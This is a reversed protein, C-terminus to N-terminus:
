QWAISFVPVPEAFGKLAIAGLPTADIGTLGADVCLERSVLISGAEAADCLRAAMQVATGFLDAGEVVPEGAHLGIRVHVPDGSEANFDVLSRQIRRAGDLAAAPDAFAAMIGDGLHKVERGGTSALAARVLSDHARVLELARVEGLRATMETSGVIDTFMIARYASDFDQPRAAGGGPAEPDAIRGLFAYVAAMDVQIVHDARGGHAEAHVRDATEADPADILCFGKGHVGDFWYTLFRVGYRDQVALDHRHAEAIDEATMGSLDHRDLFIPMDAERDPRKRACAALGECM